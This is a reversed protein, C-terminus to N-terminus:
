EKFQESLLDTSFELLNIVKSSLNRVQVLNKM